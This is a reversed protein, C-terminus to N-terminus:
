RGRYCKFSMNVKLAHLVIIDGQSLEPLWEAYQPSFCIVNVGLSRSSRSLLAADARQFNSSDILRFSSSWEAFILELESIETVIRM